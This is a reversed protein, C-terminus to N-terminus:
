FCGHWHGSNVGCSLVPWLIVLTEVHGSRGSAETGFVCPPMTSHFAKVLQGIIPFWYKASLISGELAIKVAKQTAM